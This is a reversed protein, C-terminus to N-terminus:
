LHFIGKLTPAWVLWGYDTADTRGNIFSPRASLVFLATPEHLLFWCRRKRSALFNLRLLLFVHAAHAVAHQAFRFGLSYPPNTVIAFRSQNDALFDYGHAIDNGDAELGARRMAQILRGDGSAPEWLPGGKPLYPILPEFASLPTPYTDRPQRISGRNTASM